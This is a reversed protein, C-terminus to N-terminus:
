RRRAGRQPRRFRFDLDDGVDRERDRSRSGRFRRRTPNRCSSRRSPAARSRGARFRADGGSADSTPPRSRRESPSVSRCVRGPALSRTRGASGLVPATERSSPRDGARPSARDPRKPRRASLRRQPRGPLSRLERELGLHQPAVRVLQAAALLLPDRDRHGEDALRLHDDHVLRRGPRSTRVCSRRISTIM